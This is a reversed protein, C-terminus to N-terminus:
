GHAYDPAAPLGFFEELTTVGTNHMETALEVGVYRFHWPEYTFGTVAVKDAPYRLVYGFRWSNAALWQGQPTGGFCAQLVCSLPVPSIDVALGTQHESFGPRASQADAQAQGLSAVWGNYVRVQVDYARWASQVQQQGAGEAASAAFMVVLADAAAKRLRAPNQAKVPVSVIDPPTWDVPNLARTKDSVVWYSSPDDISRAGKDFAPVAPASPEAVIPPKPLPTVPASPQASSSPSPIGSSASV